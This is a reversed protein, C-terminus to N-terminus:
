SALGGVRYPILMNGTSGVIPNSTENQLAGCACITGGATGSIALIQQSGLPCGVVFRLYARASRERVQFRPGGHGTPIAKLTDM